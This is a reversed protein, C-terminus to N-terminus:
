FKVSFYVSAGYWDLSSGSTEGATTTKGDADTYEEKGSGFSFAGTYEGGLSMGDTFFWQFGAVGRLNFNSWTETYEEKSNKPQSPDQDVEKYRAYGAGLGIYPAVSHYAPMYKELVVSFGLANGSDEEDRYNPNQAKCTEKYFSIDVGPRIAMDPAFFYRFGLGGGYSDLRLEDLGRFMFVLQKTGLGTDPTGGALATGALMCVVLAVILCAKKM